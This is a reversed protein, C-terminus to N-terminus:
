PCCLPAPATGAGHGSHTIWAGARAGAWPLRGACPLRAWVPICASTHRLQSVAFVAAVAQSLQDMESLGPSQCSSSAEGSSQEARHQLLCTCLCVWNSNLQKGSPQSPSSDMFCCQCRWCSLQLCPLCKGGGRKEERLILSSWRGEQQPPPVPASAPAPRLM